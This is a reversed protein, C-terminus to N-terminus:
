ARAEARRFIGGALLLFGLAYGGLVAWCLAPAEQVPFGMALLAVRSFYYSPLVHAIQQMFHPLQEVPLWLGGFFSIPLYVLNIVGPAANPAVTLGLVLGLSAFVIQGGAVTSLLQLLEAAGVPTGAVVRCLVALLLTIGMGFCVAAVLKALLYAGAPMPSARKLELWGHTREHALGAGIGFLASGIAGFCAYGALLYRGFLQGHYVAGRNLSAFMCFFIVPFGIVSLTYARTRLLKLLEYRAENAYVRAVSAEGRDGRVVMAATTV